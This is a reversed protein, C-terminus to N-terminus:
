WCANVPQCICPIRGRADRVLTVARRAIELALDQHETCGVVDLPPQEYSSAM